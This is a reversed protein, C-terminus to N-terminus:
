VEQGSNQGSELNEIIDDIQGSILRIPACDCYVAMETYSDNILNRIKSYEDFNIKNQHFLEGLFGKSQSLKQCVKSLLEIVEKDVPKNACKTDLM